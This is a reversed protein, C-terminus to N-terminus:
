LPSPLYLLFMAIAIRFFTLYFYTNISCKIKQFEIIILIIAWIESGLLSMLCGHSLLLHSVDEQSPVFHAPSELLWVCVPRPLAYYICWVDQPVIM